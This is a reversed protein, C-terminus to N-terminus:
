PLKGEELARVKELRKAHRGGEFEAALYTKVIEKAPGEGIVWEGLCLVNADNHARSRQASFTDHCLAACIGPVKNAVISMGIGTSCVLIGHNFRGQAVAQAVKGGIDPYDVSGTDYCGFDEYGHGLESLLEMIAMKLNLGRHDCGIAIRM